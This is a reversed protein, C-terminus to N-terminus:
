YRIDFEDVNLVELLREFADVAVPGGALWGRVVKRSVGCAEALDRQSMGADLVALQFRELFLEVHDSDGIGLRNYDKFCKPCLTSASRKGCFFTEGCLCVRFEMEVMVEKKEFAVIERDERADVIPKNFKLTHGALCVDRDGNEVVISKCMPCRSGYPTHTLFDHRLKLYQYEQESIPADYDTYTEEADLIKMEEDFNM